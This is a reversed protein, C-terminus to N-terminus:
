WYGEPLSVGFQKQLLRLDFLDRPTPEYGLHNAVQLQADICAVREGGVWGSTTNSVPYRRDTGDPAGAVQVRVGDDEPGLVVFVVRHGARDAVTVRTPLQDDEVAFGAGALAALAADVREAVVALDLDHHDRHQAGLLADIGWGGLLVVEVDDEALVALVDLVDTAEM